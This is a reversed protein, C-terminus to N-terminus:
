YEYDGMIEPTKRHSFQEELASNRLPVGELREEVTLRGYGANPWTIPEMEDKPRDLIGAEQLRDQDWFIYGMARLATDQPACNLYRVRSKSKSRWLWGISSSHLTDTHSSVDPTPTIGDYVPGFRASDVVEDLCPGYTATAYTLFMEMRDKTDLAFLRQLFPLGFAAMLKIQHKSSARRHSYLFMDLCHYSLRRRWSYPPQHYDPSSPTTGNEGADKHRSTPSSSGDGLAAMQLNEVFRDEVEDLQRRMEEVLYEHVCAIEEREWSPFLKLFMRPFATGPLQHVLPSEDAGPAFLKRYTEYRFFARQLRGQETVSLPPKYSSCSDACGAHKPKGLKGSYLCMCRSAQESYRSLVFDTIGWLHCLRTATSLDLARPQPGQERLAYRKVYADIKEVAEDYIEDQKDSQRISWVLQPHCSIFSAINPAECAALAETLVEAPIALQIVTSLILTRHAQFLQHCRRFSRMTAYLDRPSSINLMVMLLVEAPSAYLSAPSM